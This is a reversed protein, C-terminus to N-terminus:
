GLHAKLASATALAAAVKDFLARLRSEGGQGRDEDSEFSAPPRVAVVADDGALHLYVPGHAAHSLLLSRFDGDFLSEAEAANSAYIAFATGFAPDQAISFPRAKKPANVRGAASAPVLIITANSRKRKFWYLLGSYAPEGDAEIEAQCIAWQDGGKGALLDTLTASSTEGFLTPRATEVPKLEFDHSAYDLKHQEALEDLIPRRLHRRVRLLPLLPLLAALVLLILVVWPQSTLGARELAYGGYGAFLLLVPLMALYCGCARWHEPTMFRLRKKVSAADRLRIFDAEELRPISM